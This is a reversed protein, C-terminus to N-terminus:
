KNYRIPLLLRVLKIACRSSINNTYASRIMISRLLVVDDLPYYTFYFHTELISIISKDFTIRGSGQLHNGLKNFQKRTM